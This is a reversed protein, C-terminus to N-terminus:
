SLFERWEDSEALRKLVANREQIFRRMYRTLFLLEAIKGLIGLPASFDFRDTMLTGGDREKFSHDHKMHRFAGVLMIDQFHRPRDFETMKVKLKQTFGFHRAQWTVEEGPGLLGTTVGAIAKESTASASQRHADISRALDFVRECPANIHTEFRLVPM